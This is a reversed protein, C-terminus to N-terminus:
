LPAHCAQKDRRTMGQCVATYTQDDGRLISVCARCFADADENSMATSGTHRFAADRGISTRGGILAIIPKRVARAVAQFRQADGFSEAYLLIAKCAPDAGFHELYEGLGLQM